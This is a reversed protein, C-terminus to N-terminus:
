CRLGSSRRRFVRERAHRQEGGLALLGASLGGDLDRFVSELADADRHGLEGLKTALLEILSRTGLAYATRCLKPLRPLDSALTAIPCGTARADRHKASLYSAIYAALGVRGDHTDTEMARQWRARGGQGEFTVGITTRVVRLAGM